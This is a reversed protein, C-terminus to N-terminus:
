QSGQKAVEVQVQGRTWASVGLIAGLSLHFLGGESLTLSKWSVLDNGTYISLAVLVLPALIFDFICIAMYTLAM